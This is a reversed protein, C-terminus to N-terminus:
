VSITYSITLIGVNDWATGGENLFSASPTFQLRNNVYDNNIVGTLGSASFGGVYPQHTDNPKMVRFMALSVDWQTGIFYSPLSITVEQGASCNVYGTYNLYNYNHKVGAIYRSIGDASLETYSGDAHNINLTGADLDFTVAGGLIKGAIIKDAIFGAGTGFTSYQWQNNVKVSAIEFGSTGLVMSGYTASNIDNDEFLIAKEQQTEASDSLAQFTAKTADIIGKIKDGKINGDNTVISNLTNSMNNIINAINGKFNGLEIKDLNGTIINKTTKIVKAKLNLNYKDYRITVIDGVIVSQLIIYDKYEQTKSLEVFDIAYNVIPLDCKSTTFYALTAIKLAAVDIIDSFEITKYKPVSYNNILPSDVYKEPLMLGDKGTPFIRTAMNDMDITEDISIINKGGMILYGNDHGRNKWYGINFNDRYLEGQYNSLLSNTGMIADIPNTKVFYITNTGVVDGNCTFNHNDQTNDLIYQLAQLGTKNTPRVDELFNSILDYFIHRCNVSITTSTKSKHYIRFLQGDIKIINGEVLYAWKNPVQNIGQEGVLKTGVTKPITITGFRPISDLIPYVLTAEYMGNLEEDVVCSICENLVVIGNHTFDTCSSDYVNIM